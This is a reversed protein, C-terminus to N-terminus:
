KILLEKAEDLLDAVSEMEIPDPLILYERVKRVREHQYEQRSYKNIHSIDKYVSNSLGILEARASQLHKKSPALGIFAWFSYLSIKSAIPELECALRRFIQQLTAREQLKKERDQDHVPTMYLNNENFTIEVGIKAIIEKLEKLPTFVFQFFFQGLLFVVVASTLQYAQAMVFIFLVLAVIAMYILIRVFLTLIKGIIEM